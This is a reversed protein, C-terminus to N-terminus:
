SMAADACDTKSLVRMRYMQELETASKRIWASKFLQSAKLRRKVDPQVLAAILERAEPQVHPLPSVQAGMIRNVLAQRADERDNFEAADMDMMALSEDDLLEQAAVWAPDLGENQILFKAIQPQLLDTNIGEGWDFPHSGSLVLYLTVGLAWTDMKLTFLPTLM